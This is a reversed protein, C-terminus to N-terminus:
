PSVQMGEARAVKRQREDFSLFEDAKLHLAAAVHMLDLSRTGLRASHRDALDAAGEFLVAARISRVAFVGNQFDDQFLRWKLAAAALDFEGRFVALHFANRLELEGLQSLWVPAQLRGMVGAASASTTEAKYLSVVFGTDAYASM